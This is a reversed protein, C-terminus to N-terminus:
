QVRDCESVSGETRSGQVLLWGSSSVGVQCCVISVLSMDMGGASNSVRMGLFPAAASGRRLGRLWQTRSM